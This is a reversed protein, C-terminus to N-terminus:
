EDRDPYQDPNGGISEIVRPYKTDKKPPHPKVRSKTIKFLWSDGYDFLYYLKKGKELPYLAELTTTYIGENEDDFREKDRSREKKAVYFEYLHDKDFGVAAQIAMHLDGLIASSDIEIVRVCEETAYLGFLLEVRLTWIMPDAEVEEPGVVYQPPSEGIRNTVKPYKSKPTKKQVSIVNVQHWWDDGFDFWYGFAEHTKLKLTDLTTKAVDGELEGQASEELAGALGFRRANPDNPGKGGFQFEYMHQFERDFAMFIAQHLEKLTQDGRIEIIRSVEPNREVFKPSVPGGVLFVELTYLNMVAGYPM